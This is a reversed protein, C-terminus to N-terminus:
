SVYLRRETEFHRTLVHEATAPVLVQQAERLDPAGRTETRPVKTARPQIGIWAISGLQTTRQRQVPNDFHDADLAARLAGRM